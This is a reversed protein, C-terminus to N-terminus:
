ILRREGGRRRNFKIRFLRMLSICTRCKLCPDLKHPRKLYLDQEASVDRM